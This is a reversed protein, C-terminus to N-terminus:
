IKLTKDLDQRERLLDEYTRQCQQIQQCNVPLTTVGHINDWEANFAKNFEATGSLQQLTKITTEDSQHISSSITNWILLFVESLVFLITFLVVWTRM